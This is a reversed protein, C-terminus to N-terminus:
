LLTPDPARYVSRGRVFTEVVARDDGRYVLLSLIQEGSMDADWHTERGFPMIRSPDLIVFDAEKGVDLSGLTLSKGLADAGGQTALHFVEAPTPVPVSPDQFYRAKQVDLASRMVQWMNLEPGGAVDSGLGIRLGAARLRDLPMLGSNLFFNSTPCHAIASQTEALLRIEEDDLHIAHGLISKPGLLGCSEYVQTYSKSDPFLERVTAIEAHNESLHTQIYAGYKQALEAAEQMLEASCSVAFRPSFAYELRGDAEGHWRKCLIESERLAAERRRAPDEIGSYSIRDMMVQGIIARLGSAEAAQFVTDCSDAFVTTYLVACTTGYRALEQFFYPAEREAAATNFNKELPFIHRELWPLLEKETRAVARYQPLHAHIDILGPIVVCRELHIWRVPRNRSRASLERYNGKEVIHGDDVIFAGDRLERVEGFEPTDLLFGHIGLLKETEM